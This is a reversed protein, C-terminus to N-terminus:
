ILFEAFSETNSEPALQSSRGETVIVNGYCDPQVGTVILRILNKHLTCSFPHM